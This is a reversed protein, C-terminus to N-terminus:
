LHIIVSKKRIGGINLIGIADISDYRVHSQPIKNFKVRLAEEYNMALQYVKYSFDAFIRNRVSDAWILVAATILKYDYYPRRLYCICSPGALVGMASM